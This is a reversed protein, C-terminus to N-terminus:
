PHSPASSRNERDVSTSRSRRRLAAGAAGFGMIMLLWAGPEPLSGIGQQVIITDALSFAEGATDVGDYTFTIAYSTDRNPDYDIDGLAPLTMGGGLPINEGNLFGFSLRWSNQYGGAGNKANDFVLAPNFSASSYTTLNTITILATQSLPTSGDTDFSWDFSLQGGLTLFNYVSGGQMAPELYTRARLGLEIGNDTAVVFHGNQNGSGFYVGGALNTDYIVAASAPAAAGTIAAALSMLIFTRM